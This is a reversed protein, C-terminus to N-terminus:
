TRDSFRALYYLDLDALAPDDARVALTVGAARGCIVVM